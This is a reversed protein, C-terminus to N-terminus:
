RWGPLGLETLSLLAAICGAAGERERTERRERREGTERREDRQERPPVTDHLVLTFKGHHAVDSMLETFSLLAAICGAAGERELVARYHEVNGKLLRSLDQQVGKGSFESAKRETALAGARALVDVLRRREPSSDDKPLVCERAGIQSLLCLSRSVTFPPSALSATDGV